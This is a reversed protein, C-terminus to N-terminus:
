AEVGPARSVGGRIDEYFRDRVGLANVECMSVLRDGVPLRFVCLDLRERGRATGIEERSMFHHSVINFRQVRARGSVLRRVLALRGEPAMRRAQAWFYPLVKGVWFSPARAVMAALRILAQGQADRRFSAGGYRDLYGLVAQEDGGEGLLWLPHFTPDPRRGEDFLVFGHVYRNCGEHGLWMQGRLLYSVDAAPGFLGRAAHRWLEEVDVGGGLGAATRGVQAMPQFSLMKFADANRAVCRVAAPVSELNDRNITMTTAAVLPRGTTKRADRIMQAFEERLPNLEEESRANRYEAGKRGRMTTDVHIGIERLGGREMLRELLGPRRRFSDGHTMLMPVHGVEDAYLLLEVLEDEDRLTVEGDTLQLNGNPGLLPRLARMQAKVASVPLPPVHNADEGLYCGTCAFDCRPLVGLTAGCCNGQRGFMQLKTRFREPLSAWSEELKDRSERLVPERVIRLLSQGERAM